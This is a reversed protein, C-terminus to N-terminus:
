RQVDMEKGLVAAEPCFSAAMVERDQRGKAGGDTFPTHPVEPGHPPSPPHSPVTPTPDTGRSCRLQASSTPFPKRGAGMPAARGFGPRGRLSFASLSNDGVTPLTGPDQEGTRRHRLLPAPFPLLHWRM